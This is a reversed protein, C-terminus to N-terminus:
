FRQRALLHPWQPATEALVTYLHQNANDSSEGTAGMRKCISRQLSLILTKKVEFSCEQFGDSDKDGSWAGPANNKPDTQMSAFHDGSIQELSVM